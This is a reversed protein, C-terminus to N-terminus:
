VYPFEVTTFPWSDCGGLGVIAAPECCNGLPRTRNNEIWISQLPNIRISPSKSNSPISVGEIGRLRYPNPYFRVLGLRSSRPDVVHVIPTPTLLNHTGKVPSSCPDYGVWVQRLTIGMPRTPRLDSWRDNMPRLCMLSFARWPPRSTWWPASGISPYRGLKWGCIM